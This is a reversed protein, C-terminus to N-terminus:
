ERRVWGAAFRYDTATTAWEASSGCVVWGHSPEVRWRGRAQQWECSQRGREGWAPQSWYEVLVIGGLAGAQLTAEPGLAEQTGAPVIRGLTGAQLMAELGIREPTEVPVIGELTEEPPAVELAGVRATEALTKGLGIAELIGVLVIGERTEGPGTPGLTGAPLTVELGTAELTGVPDTGVQMEQRGTTQLTIGALVITRGM